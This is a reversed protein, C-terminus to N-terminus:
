EERSQWTAASRAIFFPPPLYWERGGTRFSTSVCALLNGRGSLDPSAIIVNRGPEPM